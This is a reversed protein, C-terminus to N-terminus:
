TAYAAYDHLEDPDPVISMQVEKPLTKMKLQILKLLCRTAISSSPANKRNFYDAPLVLYPASVM